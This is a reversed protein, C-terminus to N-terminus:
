HAREGGKPFSYISLASGVAFAIATATLLTWPAERLSTADVVPWAWCVAGAAVAGLAIPPILRFRVRYGVKAGLLALPVGSQM